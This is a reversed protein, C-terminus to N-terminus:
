KNEASKSRMDTIYDYEDVIEGVIEELVDELTIIGAVGKFEDKAILLHLRNKKFLDLVKDLRDNQNIYNIKKRMVSTIKTNADPDIAILDKAFLIGIVKDRTKDFIPIRSHGQSHIEELTKKNLITEKELFFVNIRPTMVDKVIRESFELGGEIIEFEDTSIDAKKQSKKLHKQEQVLLRFEKKSFITPLEGGLAKDLIMSLPKTIPYLVYLFPYILWATQGGLKMAHRSYFAQPIIEGFIVILGTSVIAAIVGATISGLFVALVSNVAVNGLLLTCLLLNGHKRLPYIRKAYADGMKIKRKLTFPNLSMLGLTLGSFLGSLAILVVVIVYNYWM